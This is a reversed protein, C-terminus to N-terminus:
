LLSSSVLHSPVSLLVKRPICIYATFAQSRWRGLAQILSDKMGCAAATTAAGVRFSHGNFRSVDLGQSSLASSVASVLRERSLTSVDRFLFLLGPSLGRLVLYPLLAKVPCVLGAVCALYITVGVGFVDTKSQRLHLTVLSPRAHSDVAVDGVSLM